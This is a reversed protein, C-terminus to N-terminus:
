KDKVTLTLPSSTVTVKGFGDPNAKIGKPAPSVATVLGATLKYEGAKTWYARKAISRFGFQLSKIPMSHSKGPALKVSRPLFLISDFADYVAMSKAGKGKLDLKLIVPDGAVWIEVDKKGTNKIELVLDVAPAAPFRGPTAEKLGKQFEELTLGGLDLKYTKKKAVLKAELAVGAPDTKGKPKEGSGTDDGAAAVLLGLIVPLPSLM